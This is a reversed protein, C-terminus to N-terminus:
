IDTRKDTHKRLYWCPSMGLHPFLSNVCSESHPPQFSFETRGSKLHMAYYPQVTVAGLANRNTAVRFRLVVYDGVYTLVAAVVLTILSALLIRKMRGSQTFGSSRSSHGPIREERDRALEDAIRKYYASV